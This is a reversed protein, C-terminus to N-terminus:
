SQIVGAIAAPSVSRPACRIPFRFRNAKGVFRRSRVSRWASVKRDIKAAPVQYLEQLMRRGGQSMIVREEKPSLTKLIVATEDRVNSDIVADVPSGIWRDEILDSLAAEGDRGVPTELSVAVRSITKLKQAKEVSINMRRSIEDNIPARGLEKELQDNIAKLTIRM